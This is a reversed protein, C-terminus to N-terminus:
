VEAVFPNTIRVGEIVQGHRMDESLLVDCGALKASALITADYISYGYRDAFTRALIQTDLTLDGVRFITEFRSCFQFIEKWDRKYKRRLVSCYENLVQVSIVGGRQLFQVSTRLKREDTAHLYLLVNTDFFSVTM